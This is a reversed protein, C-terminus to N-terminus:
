IGAARTCSLDAPADELADKGHHRCGASASVCQQLGNKSNAPRYRLRAEMRHRVDTQATAPLASATQSPVIAGPCKM